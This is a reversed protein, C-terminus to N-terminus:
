KNLTMRIKLRKGKEKHSQMYILRRLKGKQWDDIFNDYYFSGPNGSQGGPYIGYAKPRIGLAVVMRWSPGTRKTTANVINAGGNTPLNLVSFPKLRALHLLTTTKSKAWTWNTLKNGYEKKWDNVTQKFSSRVLDTLTEKVKPTRVNDFWRSPLSDNLLILDGTKDPKPYIMMSDAPFDDEWIAQYLRQWWRNFITPGVSKSVQQYDWAKINDLAQKYIGQQKTVDIHKLMEPLLDRARLNLNDNQLAILSDPTAKNMQALQENIRVGREYTAYSWHLYYPYLTDAPFQNASSVYDREPNKITPNYKNPIWGQWEHAPNSGDLIFKGQEKWRIPFKGNPTIAINKQNDAFVFNQAPCTYGTLAKKYDRYSKARNLKYFALLENSPDHAIWRMALGPRTFGKTGYFHTEGPKLVVPGYHTFYISDYVAPKNKVKITDIRLTTSKWKDDYYYEQLTSDKFNIQYFDIVDAAANTVGWSVRENFGIITCPTGPLSAGYVNVDPSVLQVEFWISPLNLQLHPDNALIPYGTASRSGGIAWNNSGIGAAQKETLRKDMLHKYLDEPVYKTPQKPVKLEKFNWKTGAPIIPDHRQPYNPFLEDIITKGYKHLANTMELEHSRMTLTKAMYKLLLATKLPTWSQPTYNLLKYEIPLDKPELQKIYANIGESYATLIGRSTENSMMEKAAVEAAYLMGIRRQYRDYNVYNEGLIESLKGAAAYTQFEMQWLRFRATIYGQAMYLDHNNQAFIHPVMRDDIVIEVKDNLGPIQLDIKESVKKSEANQWFGEFPNFFTGLAPMRNVKQWPTNEFKSNLVYVLALTFSFLIVFRFIKM